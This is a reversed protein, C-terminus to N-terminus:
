APPLWPNPVGGNNGSAYPTVATGANNPVPEQIDDPWLVDYHAQVRVGAPIWRYVFGQSQVEEDTVTFDNEEIDWAFLRGIVARRHNYWCSYTQGKLNKGGYWSYDERSGYTSDGDFYRWDRLWDAECLVNDLHMEPGDCEIRVMGWVNEASRRLAYLHLWGSAPIDWVEQVDDKDGWDAYTNLFDPEWGLLGVRVRGTGRVMAQITWLDREAGRHTLPFINSEAVLPATGVFRGYWAGGGPSSPITPTSGVHTFTANSRWHNTGPVAEFSPNAVMNIRQPTLWAHQTYAAEFDPPAQLVAMSGEVPQVTTQGTFWVPWSFLSRNGSLAPVPRAILGDGQRMVVGGEFPTDTLYIIPDTTGGYSGELVLAAATVTSTAWNTGQAFRNNAIVYTNDAVTTVGVTQTASQPTIPASWGPKGALESITKIGTYRADQTDTFAAHNRFYVWHLSKGAMLNANPDLPAVKDLSTYLQDRFFTTFVATM